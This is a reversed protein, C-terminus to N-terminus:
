LAEENVYIVLKLAAQINNNGGGIPRRFDVAEIAISTDKALLARLFLRVGYYPGVAQFQMEYRGIRNAGGPVLNYAAKVIYIGNNRLLNHVMEVKVPLDRVTGLHSMLDTLQRQPLVHPQMKASTSRIHAINQQLRHASERKPVLLQWWLLSPLVMVLLLMAVAIRKRHWRM